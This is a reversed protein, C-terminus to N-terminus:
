IKTELCLLRPPSLGAIIQQSYDKRVDHLGLVICALEYSYELANAQYVRFTKDYFLNLETLFPLPGSLALDFSSKKKSKQM